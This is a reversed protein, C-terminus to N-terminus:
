RKQLLSSITVTGSQKMLYIQDKMEQLNDNWDVLKTLRFEQTQFNIYTPMVVEFMWFHIDKKGNLWDTWWDSQPDDKVALKEGARYINIFIRLHYPSEDTSLVLECEEGLEQKVYDYLEAKIKEQVSVGYAYVDGVSIEDAFWEKDEVLLNNKVALHLIDMAYIVIKTYDKEELICKEGKYLRLGNEYSVKTLESFDYRKESFLGKIVLVNGELRYKM